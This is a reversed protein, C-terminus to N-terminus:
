EMWVEIGAYITRGRGPEYYRGGAANPVISGTYRVDFANEIGVHPVIAFTSGTEGFTLGAYGIRVNVVTYGAASNENADDVFTESQHRVDAGITVGAAQYSMGASVGWPAVGPIRNGEFDDGDIAFSRFRADTYAASAHVRLGRLPTADASLEVGRHTASGANRFYDRGPADPVEYPILEDDVRMHYGVVECAISAATFRVGTEFSLSRQPELDPNFGGAGDPRNALETTTPTEFGTAANAFVTLGELPMWSVGLSPSMASMSRNGSDDPNATDVLRDDASFRVLDYRLAGHLRVTALPAYSLLVFPGISYVSESQDLTIRGASRPFALNQRDDRQVDLDTGASLVVASDAIPGSVALRMGVAVRDLLVTRGIIPNDVDRTILWGTVEGTLAGFHRRRAVGLELQRVKKGTEQEVNARHAAHPASDAVARTLSGPNNADVSSYAVRMGVTDGESLGLEAALASRWVSADSHERWGRYDVHSVLFRATLPGFDRAIRAYYSAPGGDASYSAGARSSTAATSLLIAGGAANGYLMSAAGRIIEAREVFRPEVGELATQGDAFTAPVGDVIVKVGRVGFQSRAGVGRVAIRDGVAYNSRNDVQVGPAMELGEELSMGQAFEPTRTVSIAYPVRRLQEATRTAYVVVTDLRTSDPPDQQAALPLSLALLAFAFRLCHMM